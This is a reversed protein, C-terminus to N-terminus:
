VQQASEFLQEWRELLNQLEDRATRHAALTEADGWDEALRRELDAIELEREQISSEVLELESQRPPAPKEPRPKEKREKPAPAPPADEGARIRVYDAWGGPYSRLGLDEVAVIRDAIADLM